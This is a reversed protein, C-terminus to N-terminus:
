YQNNKQAYNRIPICNEDDPNTPTNIVLLLIVLAFVIWFWKHSRGRRTRVLKRSPFDNYISNEYTKKM